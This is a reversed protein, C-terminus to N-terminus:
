WIQFGGCARLFRIFEAVDAADIVNRISVREERERQEPLRDISGDGLVAELRQVLRASQRIFGAVDAADTPDIADRTSIREERELQKLLRDISGDGLAAELRQALRASQQANLGDGENYHWHQCPKCEEPAFTACLAALPHWGLLNRRFYEGEPATPNLGYVDMGM